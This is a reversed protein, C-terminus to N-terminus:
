RPSDLDDEIDSLNHRALRLLIWDSRDFDSLDSIRILNILEKIDDLLDIIKAKEM